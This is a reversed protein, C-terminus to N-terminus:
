ETIPSSNPNSPVTPTRSVKRTIKQRPMRAAQRARWRLTWLGIALALPTAALLILLIAEGFDM